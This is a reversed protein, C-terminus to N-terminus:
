QFQRDATTCPRPVLAILRQTPRRSAHNNGPSRGAECLAREHSAPLSDNQGALCPQGPPMPQKISPGSLRRFTSARRCYRFFLLPPCSNSWHCCITLLLAACTDTPAHLASPLCYMVSQPFCCLQYRRLPLPAPSAWTCTAPLRGERGAEGAGDGLSAVDRAAAPLSLVSLAEFGPMPLDHARQGTLLEPPVPGAQARPGLPGLAWLAGQRAWTCASCQRKCDVGERGM